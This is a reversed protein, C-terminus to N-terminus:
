APCSLQQSCNCLQLARLLRVKLYTNLQRCRALVDGSQQMAMHQLGQSTRQRFDDEEVLRKVLKSTHSRALQQPAPPMPVARLCDM